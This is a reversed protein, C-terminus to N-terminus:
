VSGAGMTLKAYIWMIVVVIVPIVALLELAMEACGASVAGIGGSGTEPSVMSSIVVGGFLMISVGVFAAVWAICVLLLKLFSWRRLRERITV